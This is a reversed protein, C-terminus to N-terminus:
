VSVTSNVRRIKFGLNKEVIWHFDTNFRSSCNTARVPSCTGGVCHVCLSAPLVDMCVSYFHIKGLPSPPQPRCTTDRPRGVVPSPSLTRLVASAAAPHRFSSLVFHPGHASELGPGFPFPLLLAGGPERPSSHGPSPEVAAQKISIPQSHLSADPEMTGWLPDRHTSSTWLKLADIPM